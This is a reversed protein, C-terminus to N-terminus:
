RQRYVKKIAELIASHGADNPHIDPKADAIHTLKAGQDNFRPALDVLTLLLDRKTAAAQNASVANAILINLEAMAADTREETTSSKGVSFPNPYNLVIIQTGAPAAEVLATVIQTMNPTTMERLAARMAALCAENEIKEGECPQGPKLLGLIDNGGIDLTVVTIKGGELTRIANALPSNGARGATAWDGLFDASTAGSIGQNTYVIERQKEGRLATAFLGAYGKTAPDSAGVGVAYSDGLALYGVKAPSYLLVKLSSTMTELLPDVLVTSGEAAIITIQCYDLGFQRVYLTGWTSGQGLRGAFGIRRTDFTRSSAKEEYNAIVTKLHDTGRKTAADLSEAQKVDVSELGIFTLRDTSIWTDVGNPDADYGGPLQMECHGTSERVNIKGPLKAVTPSPPMTPALTATPPVKTRTATATATPVETPLARPTNTPAAPANGAAPTGCATLLFAFCLLLYTYRRIV